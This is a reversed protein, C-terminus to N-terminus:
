LSLRRKTRRSFRRRFLKLVSFLVFLCILAAFSSLIPHTTFSNKLSLKVKVKLSDYWGLPPFTLKILKDKVKDGKVDVLVYNYFSDLSVLESGGGGTIIYPVGGQDKKYYGHVGATFVRSVKYKELIASLRRFQEGLKMPHEKGPRPDYPPMHMFVFTNISKNQMLDNELWLFQDESIRNDGNDVIIFHSNMFDFSYYPSGLFDEYLRRNGGLIESSGAVTLFPVTVSNIQKMFDKYDSSSPKEVMDGCSIAFLPKRYNIDGIIRQFVNPGGRSEGFVMFMFEDKPLEPTLKYVAVKNAEVKVPFSISNKEKKIEKESLGLIKTIEPNINNVSVNFSRVENSSSNDVNITTEVGKGRVSIEASDYWEIFGGDIKIRTDDLYIVSTGGTSNKGFFANAMFPIFLIVFTM